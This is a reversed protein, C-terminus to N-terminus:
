KSTAFISRRKFLRTDTASASNGSASKAAMLEGPPSGLNSGLALVATTNTLPKLPMPSCVSKPMIRKNPNKLFKIKRQRLQEMYEKTKMPNYSQKRVIMNWLIVAIKRATATIAAGRGKKYAIKRFFHTLYDDNKSLGIANAADRLSKALISKSKETRSSLIKGGSIRHNPSLRLFSTFKKASDFKYIGLGMESLFNLATSVGVGTVAFIDTGM